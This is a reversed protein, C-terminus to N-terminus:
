QYARYSPDGGDRKVPGDVAFQGSVTMAFGLRYEIMQTPVAQTLTQGQTITLVQTVTAGPTTPITIITMIVRTPPYGALYGLVGILIVVLVVLVM